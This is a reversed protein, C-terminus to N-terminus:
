FYPYPSFQQMRQLSPDWEWPLRPDLDKSVWEGDKEYWIEAGDRNWQVDEKSIAKAIKEDSIEMNRKKRAYGPENKNLPYGNICKFRLWEPMNDPYERFVSDCPMKHPIIETLYFDAHDDVLIWDELTWKSYKLFEDMEEKLFDEACYLTFKSKYRSRGRVLPVDPEEKTHYIAIPLFVTTQILRLPIDGPPVPARYGNQQETPRLTFEYHYTNWVYRM